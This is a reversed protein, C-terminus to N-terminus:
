DAGGIISEDDRQTLVRLPCALAISMDTRTIAQFDRAVGNYTRTVLMDARAISMDTRTVTQFDRAVMMTLAHLPCTLM